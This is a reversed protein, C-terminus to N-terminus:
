EKRISIWVNKSPTTMQQMQHMMLQTHTSLEGQFYKYKGKESSGFLDVM